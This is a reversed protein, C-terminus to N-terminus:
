IRGLGDMYIRERQEIIGMEGSFRKYEASQARYRARLATHEDTLGAAKMAAAQKRTDRMNREMERQRDLADRLTFDREHEVGRKDKWVYHKTEIDRKHQEELEEESPPPMSIGPIHAGFSHRCNAGSLGAVDGYGTENVFDKYEAM